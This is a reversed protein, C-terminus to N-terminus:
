KENRMRAPTRKLNTRKKLATSGKAMTNEYDYCVYPHCGKSEQLFSFVFFLTGTVLRYNLRAQGYFSNSLYM